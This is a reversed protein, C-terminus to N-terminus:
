DDLIAALDQKLAVVLDRNREEHQNLELLANITDILESDALEEQRIMNNDALWFSVACWKWLPTEENLHCAPPPFGGPGRRGTIFQHVCQRTRKIRRAIEAQTVLNCEDVHSVSAGAKRVDAIASLIAERLSDARRSFEVLISRNVESVTADDCGAEFLADELEPTLKDVGSLVISFDFERQCDAMSM